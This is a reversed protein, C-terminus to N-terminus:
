DKSTKHIHATNHICWDWGNTNNEVEAEKDHPKPWDGVNETCLDEGGSNTAEANGYTGECKPYTVDNDGVCEWHHEFGNAESTNKTQIRNHAEYWPHKNEHFDRFGLTHWKFYNGLEEWNTSLLSCVGLVLLKTAMIYQFNQSTNTKRSENPDKKKIMYKKPYPVSSKQLIFFFPIM